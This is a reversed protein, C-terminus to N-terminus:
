LLYTDQRRLERESQDIIFIEKRTFGRFELEAVLARVLEKSTALGPGSNTFVKLGVRRHKGPEVKRGGAEEFALLLLSLERAISRSPLIRWVGNGSRQLPLTM